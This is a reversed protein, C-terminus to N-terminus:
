KDCLWTNMPKEHFEVGDLVTTLRWWGLPQLPQALPKIGFCLTGFGQVHGFALVPAPKRSNSSAQFSWCREAERAPAYLQAM